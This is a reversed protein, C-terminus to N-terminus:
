ARTFTATVTIGEETVTFSLQNRDASVDVITVTGDSDTATIQNGNMTWTGSSTETVGAETATLSLTYTNDPRIVLTGTAAPPGVTIVVGEETVSMSQLTFTGQFVETPGTTSDGDGNSSCSFAMLCILLLIALKKM